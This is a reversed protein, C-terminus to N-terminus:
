PIRVGLLKRLAKLADIHWKSATHGHVGYQESIEALSLGDGYHLKLVDRQREPLEAAAALLKARVRARDIGADLNQLISVELGGADLSGTSKARAFHRGSISDLIAGRVCLRAYAGFPAGGHQKPQYRDAAEVLATMGISVLDDLEFSEPVKQAIMRAIPQVINLHDTVLQDRKALARASRQRSSGM